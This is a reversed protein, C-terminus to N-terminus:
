EGQAQATKLARLRPASTKVTPDRSLSELAALAKQKGKNGGKVWEGLMLVADVARNDDDDTAVRGLVSIAFTRLSEELTPDRGLPDVAVPPGLDEIIKQAEKRKSRAIIRALERAKDEIGSPDPSIIRLEAIIRDLPSLTRSVEPSTVVPSSNNKQVPEVNKDPLKKPSPAVIPANKTQVSKSQVPVSVVPESRTSKPKPTPAMTPEPINSVPAVPAPVRPAPAQSPKTAAASEPTKIPRSPTPVAPVQPPTASSKPKGTKASASGAPAETKQGSENTLVVIVGVGVLAAAVVAGVAWKPVDRTPLKFEDTVIERQSEDRTPELKHESLTTESTLTEFVDRSASPTEVPSAEPVHGEAFSVEPAAPATETRPPDALIETSAPKVRSSSDSRAAIRQRPTSSMAPRADGVGLITATRLGATSPQEDHTEVAALPKEPPVVPAPAAPLQRKSAAVMSGSSRRETQPVRGVDREVRAGTYQAETQKLKRTAEMQDWLLRVYSRADTVLPHDLDSLMASVASSVTELYADNQAAHGMAMLMQSALGDTLNPILRSGESLFNAVEPYYELRTLDRFEKKMALMEAVYQAQDTSSNVELVTQLVDRATVAGSALNQVVGLLRATNIASDFQARKHIWRRRDSESGSDPVPTKSPERGNTM